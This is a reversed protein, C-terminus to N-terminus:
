IFMCCWLLWLLQITRCAVMGNMRTHVVCVCAASFAGLMRLYLCWAKCHLVLRTWAQRMGDHMGNAVWKRFSHGQAVFLFSCALEVGGAVLVLTGAMNGRFIM